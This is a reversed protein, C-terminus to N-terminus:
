PQNAVMLVMNHGVGDFPDEPKTPGAISYQATHGREGGGGMKFIISIIPWSRTPVKMMLHTAGNMSLYMSYM